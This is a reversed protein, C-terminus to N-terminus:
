KYLTVAHSQLVVSNKKYTTVKTSSITKKVM